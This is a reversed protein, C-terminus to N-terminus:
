ISANFQFLLLSSVDLFYSIVNPRFSVSSFNPDSTFKPTPAIIKRSRGKKDILVQMIIKRAFNRHFKNITDITISLCMSIVVFVQNALILPYNAKLITDQFHYQHFEIFLHLDWRCIGTLNETLKAFNESSLYNM